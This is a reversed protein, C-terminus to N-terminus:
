NSKDLPRTLKTKRLFAWVEHARLSAVVLGSCLEFIEHPAYPHAGSRHGFGATRLAETATPARM